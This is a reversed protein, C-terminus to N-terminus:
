KKFFTTQQSGLKFGQKLSDTNQFDRPVYPNAGDELHIRPELNIARQSSNWASVKERIINKILHM